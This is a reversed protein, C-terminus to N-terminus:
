IQKKKSSKKKSLAKKKAVKKKPATEKKVVKQPESFYRVLGANRLATKHRIPLRELLEISLLEGRVYDTSFLKLKRLVEGGYEGLPENM